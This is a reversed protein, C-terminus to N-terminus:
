SNGSSDVKLVAGTGEAALVRVYEWQASLPEDVSVDGLRVLLESVIRWSPLIDGGPVNHRHERPPHGAPDLGKIPLGPKMVQKFRQARGENNVFTGEQEVWACCPLAVAARAMLGSPQWDIAGIVTIGELLEDPLDAEFSIIGRVRKDAIAPSLPLAGHEGSLLACGFSNPGDLIFALKINPFHALDKM